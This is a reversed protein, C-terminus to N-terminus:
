PVPKSFAAIADEASRYIMFLPTLGSIQLVKAVPAQLGAIAIHGGATKMRKAALLLARVGASGIFTLDRCNLVMRQERQSIRVQLMRELLSVGVPGLRGRLDLVWCNGERRESLMLGESRTGGSALVEDEGVRWRLTLQNRDGNRSYAVSDVLKRVLHLGLGGINRDELPTDLKPPPVTLPDFAAGDDEIEVIVDDGDRVARFEIQHQETKPFAYSIVNTLVEDVALTLSSVLTAPLAAERGFKELGRVVVELESLQNRVSIEFAESKMRM